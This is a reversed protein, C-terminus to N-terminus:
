GLRDHRLSRGEGLALINNFVCAGGVSPDQSSTCVPVPAEPSIRTMRGWVYHDLILDGIVLVLRLFDSFIASFAAPSKDQRSSSGATTASDRAPRSVSDGQRVSSWSGSRGNGKAAKRGFMSPKGRDKRARIGLGATWITANNMVFLVLVTISRVDPVIGDIVGSDIRQTYAKDDLTVRQGLGSQAQSFRTAQHRRDAQHFRGDRSRVCSTGAPKGFRDGCLPLVVPPFTVSIQLRQGNFATPSSAM